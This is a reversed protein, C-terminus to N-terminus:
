VLSETKNGLVAIIDWYRIFMYERGEINNVFGFKDPFLVIEDETVNIKDGKLPTGIIKIVGYRQSPKKVISTILGSKSVEGVIKKGDVEVTTADKGYYEDCMVWGAIPIIKCDRVVCLISGYNINVYMKGEHRILSGKNVSAYSFYVRDGVQVEPEVSDLQKFDGEEFKIIDGKVLMEPVAVCAGYIRQDKAEVDLQIESRQKAAYNPRFLKLGGLQYEDESLKEIEILVSNKTGRKIMKIFNRLRILL